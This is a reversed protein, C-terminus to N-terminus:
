KTETLSKIAEESTMNGTAFQFYVEAIRVADAAKVLPLTYQQQALVNSASSICSLRSITKDKDSPGANQTCACPNSTAQTPAQAVNKGTVKCGVINTYKGKTELQLEVVSNQEVNGPDQTKFLTFNKGSNTKLVKYTEGKASTKSEIAMVTTTLTEAM